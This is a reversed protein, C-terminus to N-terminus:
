KRKGDKEGKSKNYANQLATRMSNGAVLKGKDDRYLGPSQRVVKGKDARQVIPTTAGASGVLQQAGNLYYNYKDQTIRKDQLASDLKSKVADFTIGQQKAFHQMNQLAINGNNEANSVAGKAYWAALDSAKQGVFGYSAALADAAPVAANWATPQAGAIKDINSWKLTSGDKGFDYKSGDALTGQFNEDLIGGKQLVGRIADRQMQAKNKSSGFKSGAYGAAAGVAAGIATGIVPGGLFTGIGAGMSAGAALGGTAGAIDRQSGAAMDALAEGTKYGTYAGTAINLGPVINSGLNAGAAGAVNAAGTAGALGAGVKDGSKYANYAQYMQLLGLGGQGVKGWDVGQLFTQDNAMEVPVTQPGVPTNITTTAGNLDVTPGAGSVTSVEPPVSRTLTLSGNDPYQPTPQSGFAERVNPFNRLAENALLSGGIVGGAQAFQGTQANRANEKAIDEPSKPQGWISTTQQMAADHPVGRSTLWAYYARPQSKAFAPADPNFMQENVAM